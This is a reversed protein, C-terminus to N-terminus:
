WPRIHGNPYKCGLQTPVCSNGHFAPVPVRGYYTETPYVPAYGGRRHGGEHGRNLLAAAGLVLATGVVATVVPNPQEAVVQPRQQAPGTPVYVQQQQPQPCVVADTHIDRTCVVREQGYAPAAMVASALFALGLNQGKSM